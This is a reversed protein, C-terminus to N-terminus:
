KQHKQYTEGNKRQHPWLEKLKKQIKNQSQIQTDIKM